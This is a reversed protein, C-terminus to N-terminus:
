PNASILLVGTHKDVAIESVFEGNMTKFIGHLDIIYSDSTPNVLVKGKSFDRTYVSTNTIRYYDNLPAGLDINYLPQIFQTTSNMDAFFGMYNQNNKVGLLTSAFAYKVMQEKSSNIPLAYPNRLTSELKLLPIFIREPKDKLFNDQIFVLLDLSELWEEESMWAGDYQYWIGESMVGDLPSDSSLFKMYQNYNNWFHMGQNIGNAVLLKSGIASKIEKHVEMLAQAVEEDKWFEGTRPNIALASANWFHMSVRPFLSVDAFVGNFEYQDIKEKIWNAVWKQYQLNGIDAFYNTPYVKHYVLQGNEDKLIWNNDLAMQWEDSYNYIVRISRYLLAVFDQRKEHVQQIKDAASPRAQCMDFLKAITEADVDKFFADATYRKVVFGLTSNDIVGYSEIVNNTQLGQVPILFVFTVILSCAILTSKKINVGDRLKRLSGGM